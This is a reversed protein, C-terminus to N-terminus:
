LAIVKEDCGPLCRRGKPVLRPDFTGDRDRPVEISLEEEGTKVRKRTKGNRRNGGDRGEPGHNEYGLHDTMEGQLAREVLRKKLELALGGESLMDEPRRGKLVQDLLADVEKDHESQKRSAM